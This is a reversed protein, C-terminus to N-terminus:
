ELDREVDDLRAPVSVVDLNGDCGQSEPPGVSEVGGLQSRRVGSERHDRPM